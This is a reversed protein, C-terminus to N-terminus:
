WLMIDDDILLLPVKRVVKRGSAPDIEGNWEVWALLNKLVSVNKKIVFLLPETGPGIAFQNAM